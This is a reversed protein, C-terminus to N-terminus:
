SSVLVIDPIRSAKRAAEFLNWTGRANVDFPLLPNSLALAPLAHAALHFVLDIRHDEFIRALAAEDRVDARVIEMRPAAPATDVGVLRNDVWIGRASRESLAGSLWEGVFGGCGTVLVAKGAWGSM